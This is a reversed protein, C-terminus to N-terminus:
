EDFILESLKVKRRQANVEDREASTLSDLLAQRRAKQEDSLKSKQEDDMKASLDADRKELLREIHAVMEAPTQCYKSRANALLETDSLNSDGSEPFQVLRAALQQAVEINQEEIIMAIDSRPYGGFNKCFSKQTEFDAACYFAAVNDPSPEIELAPVEVFDANFYM